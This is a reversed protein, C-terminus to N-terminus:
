PTLRSSIRKYNRLCTTKKGLKLGMFFLVAKQFISIKVRLVLCPCIIQMHEHM